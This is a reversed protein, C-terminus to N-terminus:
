RADDHDSPSAKAIFPHALLEEATPRLIPDKVLCIQLFDRMEKSWQNEDLEPPTV